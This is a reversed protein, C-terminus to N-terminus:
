EANVVCFWIRGTSYLNLLTTLATLSTDPWILSRFQIHVNLILIDNLKVCRVCSPVCASRRGSLVPLLYIFLYFNFIHNVFLRHKFSVACIFSSILIKSITFTSCDKTQSNYSTLASPCM